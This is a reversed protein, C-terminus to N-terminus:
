VTKVRAGPPACLSRELSQISGDPPHEVGILIKGDTVERDYNMPETSAAHRAGTRLARSRAKGKVEM